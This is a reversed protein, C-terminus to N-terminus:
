INSLLQHKQKTNPEETPMGAKQHHAATNRRYVLVALLAVILGVASLVCLLIIVIAAPSLAELSMVPCRHSMVAPDQPQIREPCGDVCLYIDSHRNRGGLNARLLCQYVGSDGATVNGLELHGEDGLSFGAPRSYRYYKISGNRKQLLGSREEGTPHNLRYWTLSRYEEGAALSLMLADCPLSANSHLPFPVEQLVSSQVLCMDQYSSMLLLLLPLEVLGTLQMM